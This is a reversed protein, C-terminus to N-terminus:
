ARRCEIRIDRQPYHYVPTKFEVEWGILVKQLEKKTYCWQHWMLPDDKHITGFIGLLTLQQDEEGDLILKAIKDMCPMELVLLGNPKLARWWEMLYLHINRRPLHEFVHILHIEDVSEDGFPINLLDVERLNKFGPWHKEGCALNVRVAEEM